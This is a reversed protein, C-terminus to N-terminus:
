APEKVLTAVVEEAERVRIKGSMLLPLLEDRIESYREVSDYADDIAENLLSVRASFDDIEQREPLAVQFAPLAAASMHLVTTGNCYGLAHDRFAQSSIAAQLFEPSTGSKPRVVALDLSAILQGDKKGRRIRVPRGIVERAQTLDTLAVVLDGNEVIQSPKAHHSSLPKYGDVRFGGNRDINKLNVLWDGDAVLEASKYSYGKQIDAIASFSVVQDDDASKALLQQSLDAVLTELKSAMVVNSDILDDLAGLVGAIRRQEGQSPLLVKISSLHNRNLTPVGSGVNLSGFDISKLLYYLFRMDNGKTDKVWLTTNLPWFDTAIFRAGGISGSRGIVVGPGKVMAVEHMGVVSTSAVVPFEGPIRKAAPLDFGRQLTVVDSLPIRNNM